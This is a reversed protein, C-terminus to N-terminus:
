KLTLSASFIYNMDGREKLTEQMTEFSRELLRTEERGDPYQVTVPQDLDLMGDKLLVTIPVSCTNSEVVIRNQRGDLRVVIKEGGEPEVQGEARLWFFSRVQREQQLELRVCPEWILRKPLPDRVFGQLFHIANSDVQRRTVLGTALWARNDILVTQDEMSNDRFGHGKDVHVYVNHVYGDPEENQLRDLYKQYQVTVHNRDYADDHIGVQLQIPTHYLNALSIENPHGASMHLAAFRDPMCPGILYVGDGGASYGLLYIRNPDAGNFVILNEILRDYLPYSEPNAHTDWTDRVGRPNIYIGSQVSGKYIRSMFEWQQDNIDPTPGYGGGHLAIYVPYGGEQPEGIVSMGYRMSVGGYTLCQAKAEARRGEDAYLEECHKKWLQEMCQQAELGNM